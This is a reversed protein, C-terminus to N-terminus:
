FLKKADKIRQLTREKGLIAAIDFPSPSAKKGSLAARLPWLLSGRDGIEKTASMLVNEIEHSVFMEEKIGSLVKKAMDLSNIIEKDSIIKWRLLDKPYDLKNKFFFDTAQVIDSLKKIRQWEPRIVNMLGEFSITNESDTITYSMAAEEAHQGQQLNEPNAKILGAQILYPVCLETLKRLPKKRIYFGNLWDLKTLNFVAGGKQIKELSFEKILSALSFVEREDGPNWGLFAMFNILAEPLYGTERYDSIAVANHRKSLKSRDAGLILPLHAYKPQNFNLAEQILCQKPTNTIHDEGRFIHSIKMEFDDVVSAFNYLPSKLNKAIVFDGGLTDSEFEVKGRILDEFIIKKLPVRFRIVSPKGEALKKECEEKTLKSCQGNYRVPQGASMQYQRMAEIDEGSCFCYYAKDEKLLQELYKSYIELRESQRYPGYKGIDEKGGLMPGEDWHMGLWELSEMIDKEFRPESRKKDTDDIRLIFVGRDKKALLYNFLATRALGIHLFGTPSPAIRVRVSGPKILQFNDTTM